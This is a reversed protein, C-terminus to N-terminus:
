HSIERLAANRFFVTPSCLVVYFPIHTSLHVIKFYIVFPFTYVPLFTVSIHTHRYTCIWSGLCLVSQYLKVSCLSVQSGLM